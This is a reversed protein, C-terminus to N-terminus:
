DRSALVQEQKEEDPDQDEKGVSVMKILNIKKNVAPHEPVLHSKNEIGTGQLELNEM